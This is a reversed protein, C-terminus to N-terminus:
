VHTKGSVLRCPLFWLQGWLCCNPQTIKWWFNLVGGSFDVLVSGQESLESHTLVIVFKTLWLNIMLFLLLNHAACQDQVDISRSLINFSKKKVLKWTHYFGFWKIQVLLQLMHLPFKCASVDCDTTNALLIIDSSSDWLNEDRSMMFKAQHFHWM